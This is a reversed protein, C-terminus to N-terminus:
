LSGTPLLDQSAVPKASAGRSIKQMNWMSGLAKDMEPVSFKGWGSSATFTMEGFRITNRFSYLDVRVFDFGEALKEALRLMEELNAPKEVPVGKPYMVSFDQYNWAPDYFSRSHQTFREADVQIFRCKGHFCLFKIDMPIQQKEDLMMEEIIFRRPMEMYWPENTWFGFRDALKRALLEEIHRKDERDKDFVFIVGEGGGSHTTKIVFRPPLDEWPILSPNDGVYYVDNLSATGIRSAVFKRVEYKDALRIVWDMNHFLKRHMIKENFTRPNEIDPIYGLNYMARFLEYYKAGLLWKAIGWLRNKVDRQM